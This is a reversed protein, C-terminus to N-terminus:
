QKKNLYEIAAYLSEVNDKFNGLGTNCSICLLGRVNKNVHCHDIALVKNLVSQHKGCIKCCGKQQEFLNNYEDLTIGYERLLLNNRVRDKNKARYEKDYESKYVKNKITYEKKVISLKEKNNERYEKRQKSVREKNNLVWDQKRKKIEPTNEIRWKEKNKNYYDKRRQLYTQRETMDIIYSTAGV